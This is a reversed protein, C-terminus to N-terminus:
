CLIHKVRFVLASWYQEITLTRNNGNEIKPQQHFITIGNQVLNNKRKKKNYCDKCVNTDKKYKNIDLKINCVSCNKNKDM